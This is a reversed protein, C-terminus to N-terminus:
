IGGFIQDLADMNRKIAELDDKHIKVQFISDQLMGMEMLTKGTRPDKEYTRCLVEYGYGVSIMEVKKIRSPGSIGYSALIDEVNNKIETDSISDGSDKLSIGYKELEGIISEHNACFNNIDDDTIGVCEFEMDADSDVATQGYVSGHFVLTLIIFLPIGATINRM